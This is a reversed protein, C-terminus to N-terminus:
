RADPELWSPANDGAMVILAGEQVVIRSPKGIFENSVGIPNDAAMAYDRLPYKLGELTVGRATGDAAFV